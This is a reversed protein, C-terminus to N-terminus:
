GKLTRILVHGHKLWIWLVGTGAIITASLLAAFVVRWLRRRVPQVVAGDRGELELPHEDAYADEGLYGNFISTNWHRIHVFYVHWTLISLLALVAEGGHAAKAALIAEGPIFASWRVPYLLILGTAVMLATGWVLALYELKEAFTYRGMRPPEAELGLNFRVQQFFDSVDKLRPVMPMAEGRALHVWLSEVVHWVLQLAMITGLVHHLARTRTVGGIILVIGKAWAQAPFKQPMGTLVLGTFTVLMLFHNVIQRRKFRRIRANVDSM